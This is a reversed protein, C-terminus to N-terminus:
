RGAETIFESLSEVTPCEFLKRLPVEVKFAEQLRSTLQTALLSHGGLDFFNDTVSVREASLVEAWIAALVDEVPNRAAVYDEGSEQFANDPSPLAQRNVKGSATLPLESLKIFASPIMYEPLSQKLHARLESTSVSARGDLVVYAALRKQGLKECAVAVADRVNEHQKLVAEIEGLEIRFGRVKVQQDIRGLFEINGDTRLRALDGSKYLRGGPIPAFPDPLFREATLDARNLYGRALGAGGIYLEGSVGIPVLQLREDLVYVQAHPVRYGISPLRPWNRALGALTFSTAAHTESPGYHNYLACHPLKSFLSEIEPTIKLQEGATMVEQLSRFLV